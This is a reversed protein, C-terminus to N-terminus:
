KFPPRFILTKTNVIGFDKLFGISKTLNIWQQQGRVWTPHTFWFKAITIKWIQFKMEQFTVHLILQLTMLNMVHRAKMLNPYNNKRELVTNVVDTEDLLKTFMDKVYINDILEFQTRRVRVNVNLISVILVRYDNQSVNWSQSQLIFLRLWKKRNCSVLLRKSSNTKRKNKKQLSSILFNDISFLVTKLHQQIHRINCLAGIRYKM